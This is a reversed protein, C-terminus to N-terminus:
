TGRGEGPHISKADDRRRGLGVQWRGEARGARSVAAGGRGWLGGRRSERRPGAGGGAAAAAEEERVGGGGAMSGGASILARIRFSESTLTRARRGEGAKSTKQKNTQEYPRHPRGLSPPLPMYSGRGGRQTPRDRVLPGVGRTAALMHPAAVSLSLSLSFSLSLSLQPGVSGGGGRWGSGM